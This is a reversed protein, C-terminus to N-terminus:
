RTTRSTRLVRNIHEQQKERQRQQQQLTKHQQQQQKEQITPKHFLETFTDKTNVHRKSCWTIPNLHSRTVGVELDSILNVILTELGLYILSLM